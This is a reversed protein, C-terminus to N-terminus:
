LPLPQARTNRLRLRVSAGPSVPLIQLDGDHRTAVSLAFALGLGFHTVPSNTVFPELAETMLETPFGGGDDTVTIEVYEGVAHLQLEIQGLHRPVDGHQSAVVQAASSEVAYSANRLLESLVLVLQERDVYMAVDDIHLRVDIRDAVIESLDIAEMLEKSSCHTKRLPKNDAYLMLGQTLDASRLASDRVTRLLGAAPHEHSLMNLASEAGTLMVQLQNNFHHAFGSSLRGAMTAVAKAAHLQLDRERLESTLKERVVRQQIGWRRASRILVAVFAVVLPISMDEVSTTTAFLAFLLLCSIVLTLHGAVTPLILAGTGIVAVSMVLRTLELDGASNLFYHVLLSIHMVAWLLVVGYHGPPAYRGGRWRTAIVLWGCIAALLGFVVASSLAEPDLHFYVEVSMGLVFLAPALTMIHEADKLYAQELLAKRDAM